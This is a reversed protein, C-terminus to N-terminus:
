FMAYTLDINLCFICDPSSVSHFCKQKETNKAIKSFTRIQKFFEVLYLNDRSTKKQIHVANDAIYLKKKKKLEKVELAYVNM